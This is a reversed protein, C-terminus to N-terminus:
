LLGHERKYREHMIAKQVIRKRKESPKQFRRKKKLKKLLKLRDLKQNYTKLLFDGNSKEKGVINIM